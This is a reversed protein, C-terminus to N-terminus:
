STLKLRRSCETLVSYPLASRASEEEVVLAKEEEIEAM